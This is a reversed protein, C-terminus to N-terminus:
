TRDLSKGVLEDEDAVALARPVELVAEGAPHVHSEGRFADLLGPGAPPQQLGLAEAEVAHKRREQRARDEGRLDDELLEVLEPQGDLARPSQVLPVVARQRAEVLLLKPASDPTRLEM